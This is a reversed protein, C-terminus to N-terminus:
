ILEKCCYKRIGNGVYETLYARIETNSELTGQTSQLREELIWDVIHVAEHYCMGIRDASKEGGIWVSHGCTRAYFTYGGDDVVSIGTKKTFGDAEDYNFVFITCDFPAIYLKRM